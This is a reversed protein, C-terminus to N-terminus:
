QEWMEFEAAHLKGKSSGSRRENQFSMQFAGFAHGQLVREIGQPSIAGSQQQEEVPTDGM